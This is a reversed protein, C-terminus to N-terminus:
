FPFYRLFPLILTDLVDFFKVFATMNRSVPMEEYLFSKVLGPKMALQVEGQIVTM